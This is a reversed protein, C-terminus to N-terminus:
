LRFCRVGRKESNIVCFAVTRLRTEKMLQVCGRYCSHLANEAATRYRANYRPGVTHIIYRARLNFGPTVKAEGTRCGDLRTIAAGLEEGAIAALRRSFVSRDNLQESTANVVADVELALQDGLWISILSNLQPDVVFPSTRVASEDVVPPLTVGSVLDTWSLISSLSVAAPLSAEM